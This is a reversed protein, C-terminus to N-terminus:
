PPRAVRPLSNHRLTPLGRPGFKGGRGVFHLRAGAALAAAVGATSNASAALLLARDADTRALVVPPPEDPDILGPDKELWALWRRGGEGTATVYHRTTARGRASSIGVVGPHRER